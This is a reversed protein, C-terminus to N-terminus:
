PLREERAARLIAVTDGTGSPYKERLVNQLALLETTFDTTTSEQPEIQKIYTGYDLVVAVPKGRKEVVIPQKNTNTLAILENFRNKAEVTNVSKRIRKM